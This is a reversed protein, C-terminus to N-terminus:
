GQTSPSLSVGLETESERFYKVIITKIQLM